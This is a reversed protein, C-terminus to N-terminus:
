TPTERSTAPNNKRFTPRSTAMTRMESFIDLKKPRWLDSSMSSCSGAASTPVKLRYLYHTPRPLISEIQFRVSSSSSSSATYFHSVWRRGGGKGRKQVDVVYM